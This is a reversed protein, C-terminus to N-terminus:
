TLGAGQASGQTSHAQPGQQRGQMSRRQRLAGRLPSSDVVHEFPQSELATCPVELQLVARAYVLGM